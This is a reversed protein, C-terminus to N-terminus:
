TAFFAHHKSDGGRGLLRSTNAGIIYSRGSNPSPLVSPHLPCYNKGRDHIAQAYPLFSGAMGRELLASCWDVDDGYMFLNKMLCVLTM